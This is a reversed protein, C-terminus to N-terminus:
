PGFISDHLHSGTIHEQVRRERHRSDGLCRRPDAPDPAMHRAKALASRVCPPTIEGLPHDRSDATRPPQRRRGSRQKVRHAQGGRKFRIHGRHRQRVLRMHRHRGLCVRRRVPQYGRTASAGNPSSM